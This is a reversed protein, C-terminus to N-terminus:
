GGRNAASGPKTSEIGFLRKKLGALVEVESRALFFGVTAPIACILLCVAIVIPDIRYPANVIPETSLIQPVFMALVLQLVAISARIKVRQAFDPVLYRILFMLGILIGVTAATLAISILTYARVTGLNFLVAQGAVIGAPLAISPFLILRTLGVEETGELRRRLLIMSVPLVILSEGIQIVSFNLLFTRSELLTEIQDASFSLAWVLSIPFVSAILVILGFAYRKKRFLALNLATAGLAAPVFAAFLVLM